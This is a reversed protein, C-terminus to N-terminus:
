NAVKQLSNTKKKQRKPRKSRKQPRVQRIQRRKEKESSWQVCEWHPYDIIKPNPPITRMMCSPTKQSREKLLRIMLTMLTPSLSPIQHNKLGLHPISLWWNKTLTHDTSQTSPPKSNATKSPPEESKTRFLTTLKNKASPSRWQRPRM